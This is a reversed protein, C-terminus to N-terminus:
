EEVVFQAAMENAHHSRISERSLAVRVTKIVIKLKQVKLNM